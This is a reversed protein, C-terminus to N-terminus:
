IKHISALEFGNLNIIKLKFNIQFKFNNLVLALQSIFVILFSTIFSPIKNPEINNM